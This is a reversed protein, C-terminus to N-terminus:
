APLVFKAPLAEAPTAWGTLLVVVVVVMVLSRGSGDTIPWATVTLKVTVDAVPVGVPLTVTESPTSEQTPVTAAPVQLM